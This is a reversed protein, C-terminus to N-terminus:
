HLGGPAPELEALEHDIDVLAADVLRAVLDLQGVRLEVQEGEQGAVGALDQAALLDEVGDPAVFVGDLRADDVDVDPVQAPLDLRLGRTRVVDEGHGADAVPERVSPRGSRWSACLSSSS